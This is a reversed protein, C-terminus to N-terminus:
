NEFLIVKNTQLINLPFITKTEGTNVVISTQDVSSIQGKVGDIEIM